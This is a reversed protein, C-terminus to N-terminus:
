RRPKWPDLRDFGIDIVDGVMRFDILGHRNAEIALTRAQSRPCDIAKLWDSDLLADSRSGSAYALLLALAVATFTPQVQQRFKFTRGTLLGAQSWSSAANRAVKDLTEESLRDGVAGRLAQRMPGRAFEDGSRLSVVSPATAALLPDRALAVLLALLPQGRDDLSWLGRMIRFLPVDPDLAYLESLRQASLLRTAATPKGLCNNAIIAAMYDGRRADNSTAALTARLEELMMTRSTHTGRDGSRFGLADRSNTSPTNITLSMEVRACGALKGAFFM